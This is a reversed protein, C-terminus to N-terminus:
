AGRAVLQRRIREAADTAGTEVVALAVAVMHKCFGSDDYAPCDCVGEPGGGGWALDVRYAESGLVSATARGDRLSILRVRGERHYAQGRTFAKPGALATLMEPSVAGFGGAM